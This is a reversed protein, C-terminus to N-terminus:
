NVSFTNVIRLYNSVAQGSLCHPLVSYFCFPTFRLFVQANRLISSLLLPLMLKQEGVRASNTVKCHIVSPRLAQEAVNNTPEVDTRYLFVFLSQRHKIYRHLLRCIEPPASPHNLLRDCIHEVRVVQQKFDEPPLSQRNHHLDIAYKFLAQMEKPWLLKPYADVLTHM